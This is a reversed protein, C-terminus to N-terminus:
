NTTQEDQKTQSKLIKTSAYYNLQAELQALNEYQSYTLKKINNYKWEYLSNALIKAELKSIKM